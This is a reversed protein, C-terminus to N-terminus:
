RNFGDLNYLAVVAWVIFLLGSTFLVALWAMFLRFFGASANFPGGRAFQWILAIVVAIGLTILLFTVM